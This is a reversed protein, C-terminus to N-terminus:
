QSPIAIASIYAPLSAPARVLVIHQARHFRHGCHRVCFRGVKEIGPAPAQHPGITPRASATTRADDARPHLHSSPAILPAASHQPRPRISHAAM